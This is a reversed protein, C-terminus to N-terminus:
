DGVEEMQRSACDGGELRDEQSFVMFGGRVPDFM